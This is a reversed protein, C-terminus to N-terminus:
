ELVREEGVLHAGLEALPLVQEDLAALDVHAGGGAGLAHVHDIATDVVIEEIGEGEPRIRHQAHGAQEVGIAGAVHRQDVRGAGPM